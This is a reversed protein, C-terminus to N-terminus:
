HLAVGPGGLQPNHATTSNCLITKFGIHWKAHLPDPSLSSNERWSALKFGPWAQTLCKVRATGRELLTCMWFIDMRGGCFPNSNGPPHPKRYSGFILSIHSAKYSNGSPQPTKSFIGEMLSTHINEPVVCYKPVLPYAPPPPPPTIEIYHAILKYNTSKALM